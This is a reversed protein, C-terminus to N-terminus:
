VTTIEQLFKDTLFGETPTWFKRAFIHSIFFILIICPGLKTYINGTLIINLNFFKIKVQIM